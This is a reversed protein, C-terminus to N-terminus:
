LSPLNRPKTNKPNQLHTNPKKNNTISMGLKTFNWQQQLKKQGLHQQRLGPKYKLYQWLICIVKQEKDLTYLSERLGSNLLTSKVRTTMCLIGM